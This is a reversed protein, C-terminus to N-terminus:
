IRKRIAQRASSDNPLMYLAVTNGRIEITGNEANGKRESVALARKADSLRREFFLAADQTDSAKYLRILAIESYDGNITSFLVFDEIKDAFERYGSLGLCDDLTETSVSDTYHRGYCLIKGAALSTDEAVSESLIDYLTDSRECSLLLFLSAAAIVFATFCLKKLLIM